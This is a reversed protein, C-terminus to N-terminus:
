CRASDAFAAVSERLFKNMALSWRPMNELLKNWVVVPIDFQPRPQTTFLCTMLVVILEGTDPKRYESMTYVHQAVKHTRELPKYPYLDDEDVTNVTIVGFQAGSHPPYSDYFQCFGVRNLEEVGGLEGTTVFVQNFVSADDEHDDERLTMQGLIESVSIELNHHYFQLANYLQRVSQLGEFQQIEFYTSQCAGDPLMRREHHRYPKSMDRAWLRNLGVEIARRIKVERLSELIARREARDAPLHIRSYLPMVPTM